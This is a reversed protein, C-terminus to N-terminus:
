DACHRLIRSEDDRHILRWCDAGAGDIALSTIEAEADISITLPVGDIQATVAAHFPVDREIDLDASVADADLRAREMSKADAQGAVLAVIMLLMLTLSVVENLYPTPM